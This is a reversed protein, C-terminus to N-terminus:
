KISGTPLKFPRDKWEGERKDGWPAFGACAVVFDANKVKNMLINKYKNQLVVGERAIKIATSTASRTVCTTM